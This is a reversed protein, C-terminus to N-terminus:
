IILFIWLWGYIGTPLELKHSERRENPSIGFTFNTENQKKQRVCLCYKVPVLFVLLAHFPSFIDAIFLYKGRLYFSSTHQNCILHSTCVKVDTFVKGEANMERITGKLTRTLLIIPPLSTIQVMTFVVFNYLKLQVTNWPLLIYYFSLSRVYANLHSVAKKHSFYPVPSPSNHPASGFTIESKRKYVLLLSCVPGLSSKKHNEKLVDVFTIVNSLFISLSFHM